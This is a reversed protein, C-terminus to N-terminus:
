KKYVEKVINLIYKMEELCVHRRANAGKTGSERKITEVYKEGNLFQEDTRLFREKDSNTTFNYLVNAISAIVLPSVPTKGEQMASVTNLENLVKNWAHVMNVWPAKALTEDDFQVPYDRTLSEPIAREAIEPNAFLLKAKPEVTSNRVSTASTVEFKELRTEYVLDKVRMALDVEEKEKEDLDNGYLDIIKMGVEDLYKPGGEGPNTEM